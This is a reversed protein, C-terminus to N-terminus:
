KISSDLLIQSLAVADDTIDTINISDSIQCDNSFASMNEALIVAQVISIDSIENKNKGIIISNSYCSEVANEAVLKDSFLEDNYLNSLYEAHIQEVVEETEAIDVIIEGDDTNIHATEADDFALTFNRYNSNYRFNELTLTEDSGIFHIIANNGTAPYEVYVDTTKLENLVIKNNGNSDSIIDSGYGKEYIYTDNGAGGDLRDNGEGGVLIDDGAEGYLTDDGEQGYLTDNGSGGQLNDNGEGGDLLDNGDQGYLMDNGAEGYVKDDGANAYIVDNGEGMYFIEDAAAGDVNGLGSINDNGSGG